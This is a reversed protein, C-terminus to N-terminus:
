PKSVPRSHAAYPKWNLLQVQGVSAGAEETEDPNRFAGPATRWQMPAPRRSNRAIKLYTRVTNQAYNRRQLEELMMKRLHTM